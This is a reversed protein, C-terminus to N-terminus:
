RLVLEGRLPGSAGAGWSGCRRPQSKPADCRSAAFQIREGARDRLGIASLPVAMEIVWEEDDDSPDNLTGDFDHAVTAQSQWKPDSTAGRIAEDSVVGTPSVYIVYQTPDGPHQFTLRFADEPWLPTDPSTVTARIDSDAAYLLLFLKGDGWALRITSDTIPKGDDSTFLGTSAVGAAWAADNVEGDLTPVATVKPVELVSTVEPKTSNASNIVAKDSSWAHLLTLILAAGFIMTLPWLLGARAKEPPPLEM